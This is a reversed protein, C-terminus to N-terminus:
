ADSRNLRVAALGLALAAYCCLVALGAWPPLPYYGAQPGHFALVQPYEPISQQVAFGAAPTVRLLWRSVEVPLLSTTALVHPLLVLALAAVM